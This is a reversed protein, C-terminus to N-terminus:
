VRERCSARGIQGRAVMTLVPDRGVFSYRGWREAREVSELLFGAGTGVLKLFVSVPTELDALVERWVPVVSFNRALEVFEGPSPRVASM